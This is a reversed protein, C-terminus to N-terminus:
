FRANLWETIPAYCRWTSPRTDLRAVFLMDDTDDIFQRLHDRLSQANNNHWDLVYVSRQPKVAELRKMEDWLKPYDKDKNLQYSVLFVGM